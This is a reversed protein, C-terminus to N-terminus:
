KGEGVGKGSVKGGVGVSTKVVEEEKEFLMGVRRRVSEVSEEV